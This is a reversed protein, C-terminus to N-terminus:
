GPHSGLQEAAPLGSSPHCSGITRLGPVALVQDYLKPCPYLHYFVSLSSRRCKFLSLASFSKKEPTSSRLTRATGEARMDAPSVRAVAERRAAPILECDAIAMTDQPYAAGVHNSCVIAGGLRTANQEHAEIPVDISLKIILLGPDGSPRKVPQAVLDIRNCRGSQHVCARDRQTTPM